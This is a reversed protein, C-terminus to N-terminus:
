HMFLKYGTLTGTPPPPTPGHTPGAWMAHPQPTSPPAYVTAGQYHGPANVPPPSAYAVTPAAPSVSPWAHTPQHAAPIAPPPQGWQPGQTPVPTPLQTYHAQYVAPPAVSPAVAQPQPPAGWTAYGHPTGPISSPPPAMTTAPHAHGNSMPIPSLIAWEQGDISEIKLDSELNGTLQNTRPEARKIEVQLLLFSFLNLFHDIRFRTM